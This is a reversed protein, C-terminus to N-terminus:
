QQNMATESSVLALNSEVEVQKGRKVALFLTGTMLAGVKEEKKKKM